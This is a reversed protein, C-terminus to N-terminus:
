SHIEELPSNKKKRIKKYLGKRHMYSLTIYREFTLRCDCIKHLIGSAPKFYTILGNLSPSRCNPKYSSFLASQQFGSTLQTPAQKVAGMLANSVLSSLKRTFQLLSMKYVHLAEGNRRM